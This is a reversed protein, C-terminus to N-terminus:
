ILPLLMCLSIVPLLLIACFYRVSYLHMIVSLLLMDEANLCKLANKGEVQKSKNKLVILLCVLDITFSANPIKGPDGCRIAITGRGCM